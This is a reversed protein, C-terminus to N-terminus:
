PCEHFSRAEPTLPACFDDIQDNVQGAVYSLGALLIAYTVIAVVVRGYSAASAAQARHPRRPPHILPVPSGHRHRGEVTCRHPVGNHDTYAVTTVYVYHVDHGTRDPDSSARTRRELRTSVATGTTRIGSRRLYRVRLAILIIVFPGVFLVLQRAALFYHPHERM